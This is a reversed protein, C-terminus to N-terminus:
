YQYVHLYHTARNQISCAYCSCLRFTAQIPAMYLDNVNWGFLSSQPHFAKKLSDVNGNYVGDIYLDIVEKVKQIEPCRAAHAKVGNVKQEEPKLTLNEM